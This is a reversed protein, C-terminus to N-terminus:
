KRESVLLDWTFSAALITRWVIVFCYKIISLGCRSIVADEGAIMTM